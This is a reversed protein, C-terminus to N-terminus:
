IGEHVGDPRGGEVSSLDSSDFDVDDFGHERLVDAPQRGHYIAALAEAAEDVNYHRQQLIHGDGNPLLGNGGGVAGDVPPPPPQRQAATEVKQSSVELKKVLKELEYELEDLQPPFAVAVYKRQGAMQPLESRIQAIHM